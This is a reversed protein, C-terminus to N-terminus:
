FPIIKMGLQFHIIKPYNRGMAIQVNGSRMNYVVSWVTSMLVDWGNAQCSVIRCIDMAQQDTIKGNTKKLTEYATLYRLLTKGNFDGSIKGRRVYEDNSKAILDSSNYVTFNAAVQWPESNRTVKMEGQFFEIVASEGTSDAILYHLPMIPFVLNHTQLHNHLYELAEAVTAVNDLLLRMIELNFSTDYEDSHRFCAESVYMVGFALGRENMGDSALYPTYLLLAKQKESKFLINKRNHFGLTFLDVLSVSSYGNKPHRYLLLIPHDFFDHNRGLVLEGDKALAAFTTCGPGATSNKAPKKINLTKLINEKLYEACDGYYDMKYLPYDDIKELSQLTRVQDPTLKNLDIAVPKPVTFCGALVVAATFFLVPALFFPISKPLM